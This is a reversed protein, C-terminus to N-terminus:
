AAKAEQEVPAQKAKEQAERSVAIAKEANAIVPECIKLVQEAANCFVKEANETKALIAAVANIQKLLALGTLSVEKDGFKGVIPTSAVKEAAKRVVIELEEPAAKAINEKMASFQNPTLKVERVKSAKPTSEKKMSDRLSRATAILKHYSTIDELAHWSGSVQTAAIADFVVKYEAKRVKVVNPTVGEAILGKAIGDLVQKARVTSSAIAQGVKLLIVRKFTDGQKEVEVLLHATQEGYEICEKEGMGDLSEGIAQLANITTVFQNEM